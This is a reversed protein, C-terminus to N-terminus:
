RSARNNLVILEAQMEHLQKCMHRVIKARGINAECARRMGNVTINPFMPDNIAEIFAGHGHNLTRINSDITANLRRIRKKLKTAKSAM